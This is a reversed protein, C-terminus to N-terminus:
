LAPNTPLTRGHGSSSAKSKLGKRTTVGKVEDGILKGKNSNRNAHIKPRDNAGLTPEVSAVVATGVIETDNAVASDTIDAGNAVSSDAGVTIGSVAWAAVLPDIEAAKDITGRIVKDTPAGAAGKAVGTQAGAAGKVAGSPPAGAAGKVAGSPARAADKVPGTQAGIVPRSGDNMGEVSDVKGNVDKAAGDSAAGNSVANAVNGEANDNETPLVVKVGVGKPVSVQGGVVTAASTNSKKAFKSCTEVLHGIVNCHSCFKPLTEYIIQQEIVEGNPLCVKVYDRLNKRLDIEVLVRAYSLRTMSSTLMDCQIPNGIVSAIKSLCIGSWCSLPLNPLKIWVPLTSMESSNFNFFEPMERLMLPRGFVLYPGGRLVALKDDENNFKYILWGSEHLTLVAECNFENEIIASLAKYGPFKGSVYGILCTKWMACKVDLDEVLLTCADADTLEAYLKLKPCSSSSRNSAFLNKWQGLPASNQNGEGQAVPQETPAETSYTSPHDSVAALVPPATGSAVVAPALPVSCLEPLWNPGTLQEDATETPQESSKVAPQVSPKVAQKVASSADKHFHINSELESSSSEGDVSDEEDEDEGSFEDSSSSPQASSSKVSAEVDENESCAEDEEDDESCSPKKLKLFEKPPPPSESEVTLPTQPSTPILVSNRPSTVGLIVKVALPSKQSPSKKKHKKKAM